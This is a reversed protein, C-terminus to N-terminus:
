FSPVQRPRDAPAVAATTLLFHGLHNTALQLEYGDKTRCRRAPWSAQPSGCFVTRLPDWCIPSEQPLTICGYVHDLHCSLLQNMASCLLASYWVHSIRPGGANNLLVDLPHGADLAKQSFSRISDLDTLDLQVAEVKAGPQAERLLKLYLPVVTLPRAGAAAHM